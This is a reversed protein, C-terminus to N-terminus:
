VPGPSGRGALGKEPITENQEEKTLRAGQVWEADPLKAM